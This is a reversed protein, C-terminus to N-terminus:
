GTGRRALLWRGILLVGAAGAVIAGGASALRAVTEEFADETVYCARVGSADTCETLGLPAFWWVFAGIVVLGALVVTAIPRM